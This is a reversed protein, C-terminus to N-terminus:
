AKGPTLLFHSVLTSAFFTHPLNGSEGGAEAHSVWPLKVCSAMSLSLQM